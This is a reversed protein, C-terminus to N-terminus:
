GNAQKEALDGVVPLKWCQGQYAKIMLFIWVALSGLWAVLHLLGMLAWMMPIMHLAVGVISLAIMVAIIAINFFIAQFAHFRIFKNRNYPELVLFLIGTIFGFVYCLLGALNDTLGAAATGSQAPAAPASAQAYPQAGPAAAAAM